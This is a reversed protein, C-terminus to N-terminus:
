VFPDMPGALLVMMEARTVRWEATWVPKAKVSAELVQQLWVEARPVVARQEDRHYELEPAVNVEDPAQLEFRFHCAGPLGERALSVELRAVDPWGEILRNMVRRADAESALRWRWDDVRVLELGQLLALLPELPLAGFTNLFLEGRWRSLSFTGGTGHTTLSFPREPMM